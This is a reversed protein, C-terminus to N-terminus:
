VRDLFSTHGREIDLIRGGVQSLDLILDFIVLKHRDLVFLHSQVLELSVVPPFEV